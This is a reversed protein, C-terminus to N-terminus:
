YFPVIAFFHCFDWEREGLNYGEMYFLIIKIFYIVNLKNPKCFFDFFHIEVCEDCRKQSVRFKGHFVFHGILNDM